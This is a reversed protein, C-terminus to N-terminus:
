LVRNTINRHSKMKFWICFKPLATGLRSSPLHFFFSTLYVKFDQILVYMSKSTKKIMRFINCLILLNKDYPPDLSWLKEYLDNQVSVQKLM